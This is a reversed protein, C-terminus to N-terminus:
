GVIEFHPYDKFTQWDGGWRVDYGLAVAAVKVATALNRFRPLDNWDIPWPAIDVARSPVYNHNGKKTVGDIHTVIAGPKTRGQAYLEQQEEVSRHGQLVTFDVVQIVLNLVRQLREDCTALREKSRNSFQPM